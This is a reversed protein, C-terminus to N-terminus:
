LTNNRIFSKIVADLESVLQQKRQPTCFSAQISNRALQILEQPTLQFTDAVARYNEEIYGSFYAPDDSNITVALGMNLMKQIPHENMTKFVCLKINSLPCVTLPIQQKQLRAVLEMDELCRVGHDVRSVKLLDLAETIYAAPGEEGAHAVTLLGHARAKAFVSVFDRPPHDREASDLGVAIFKDQYKLASELTRLADEEPLDRLFCLIMESSINFQKKAQELAKHIGQIVVGIDIGRATHTQPDFFIETHRVNQPNIKQIYAWTLDYFDEETQLVNTGAYYLNLFSQLDTFQYAAYLEDPNAYPLPIKNREALLFMLDPELTGEIHIHLEVKPLAMILENM